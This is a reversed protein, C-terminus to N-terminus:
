FPENLSQGTYCRDAASPYHWTGSEGANGKKVDKVYIMGGKGDFTDEPKVLVFGDIGKAHVEVPFFPRSVTNDTFGDGLQLYLRTQLCPTGAGSDLLEAYANISPSRRRQAESFSTLVCLICLIITAITFTRSKM